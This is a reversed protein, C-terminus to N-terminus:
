DNSPPRCHPCDCKKPDKCATPSAIGPYFTFCVNCEDCHFTDSTASHKMGIVNNCVPCHCFEMLEKKSKEHCRFIKPELDDTSEWWM